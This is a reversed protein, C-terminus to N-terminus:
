VLRQRADLEGSNGGYGLAPFSLALDHQRNGNRFLINYPPIIMSERRRSLICLAAPFRKTPKGSREWSWLPFCIFFDQLWCICRKGRQFGWNCNDNKTPAVNRRGDTPCCVDNRPAAPSTAIRELPVPLGDQEHRRRTDKKNRCSLCSLVPKPLCQGSLRDSYPFFRKTNGRSRATRGLVGGPVPDKWRRHDKKYHAVMPRRPVVCTM